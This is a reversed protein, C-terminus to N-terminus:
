IGIKTMKATSDSPCMMLMKRNQPQRHALDDFDNQGEVQDRHRSQHEDIRIQRDPWAFQNGAVLRQFGVTKGTM